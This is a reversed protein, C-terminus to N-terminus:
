SNIKKGFYTTTTTNEGEKRITEHYLSDNRFTLSFYISDGIIGSASQYPVDPEIDNIHIKEGLVSVFKGDKIVTVEYGTSLVYENPEGPIQYFTFLSCDYRGTYTKYEKRHCSIILVLFVIYISKKAM